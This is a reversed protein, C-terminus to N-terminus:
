INIKYIFSLRLVRNEITYFINKCVAKTLLTSRPLNDCM